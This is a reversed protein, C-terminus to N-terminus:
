YHWYDFMWFSFKLLLSSLAEFALADMQCYTEVENKITEDEDRSQSEHRPNEICTEQPLYHHTIGKAFTPATIYCKKHTIKKLLLADL